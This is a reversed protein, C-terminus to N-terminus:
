KDDGGYLWELYSLYNDETRRDEEDRREKCYASSCHEEAWERSRGCPRCWYGHPNETM